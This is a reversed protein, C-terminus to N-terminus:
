QPEWAGPMFPVYYWQPTKAPDTSLVLLAWGGETKQVTATFTLTSPTTWTTFKWSTGPTFGDPLVPRSDNVVYVPLPSGLGVQAVGSPPNQQAGIRVPRLLLSIAIAALLILGAQWVSPRTTFFRM